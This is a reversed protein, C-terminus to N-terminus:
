KIGLIHLLSLHLSHLVPFYLLGCLVMYASSCVLFCITTLKFCCLPVNRVQTLFTKIDSGVSSNSEKITHSIGAYFVYALILRMFILIYGPITEGAHFTDFQDHYIFGLLAFGLYSFVFIMVVLLIMLKVDETLRSLSNKSLTYGFALALLVSSLGLELFLAFLESMAAM